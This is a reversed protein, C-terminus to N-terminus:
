SIRTKIIFGNLQMSLALKKQLSIAENRKDLGGVIVKYYEGQKGTFKNYSAKYGQSRLKTVLLRANNQQAFSALQVAYGDKKAVISQAKIATSQTLTNPAANAAVKISTAVVDHRKPAQNLATLVSPVMSKIGLPEAKVTQVKQPVSHISQIDVHAVKVSQFLAKEGAILVKPAQPKAPLRVSLNVREDLHQNSKKVMAPVFIAAISIIVVVGTLRHKIREDIVFKM